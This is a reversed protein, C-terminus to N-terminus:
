RRAPAAARGAGHVVQGGVVTCSAGAEHLRDPPTRHLDRDWVVVDAAAGRALTGLRGAAGALVAPGRTYAALAADLDIRQGPVFPEGFEDRRTLAAELAAGPAPAEVPADSGFALLAGRDLLTRWPYSRECRKGWALRAQVADSACHVPQMSAAVGLAAFRSLDEEAVLQAHEIRPPLSPVRLANGAAAFADLATRCARDGIAHIAVALGGRAARAIIDRVEAPTLTELGLNDTGEFPELMAATRSGLTGDAFLKLHGIRFWDDGIGSELGMELARDLEPLGLSQLVRLRPGPATALRRMAHLTAAGREFDHVMTIGWAHLSRAAAALLADESGAAREADAQLRQFPRVANERLIGTPEGAPDREIVGGEPDPTHRSVGAARLAAGNVWLTHFDKSHLLVPRDTGLADLAAREPPERWKSAEWGRGVIVGAGPQSAVFAAVRALAEARSASGLLAVERQARAWALLHIHADCLGPTVSSGAADIVVAERSGYRERLVATSGLAAIRDGVAALADHALPVGDWLRANVILLPAASV